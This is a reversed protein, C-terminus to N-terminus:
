VDTIADIEFGASSIQKSGPFFRVDLLKKCKFYKIWFNKKKSLKKENEIKGIKENGENNELINALGNEGM